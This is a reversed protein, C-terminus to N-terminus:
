AITTKMACCAANPAGRMGSWACARIDSCCPKPRCCARSATPATSAARRAPCIPFACAARKATGPLPRKWSRSWRTAPPTTLTPRGRVGLERIIRVLEPLGALLRRIRLVEQWSASRLLGRLEDWRSHEVDDPVMGFVEVLEDIEGCHQRWDDSFAAIAMRLAQAEDAGRDVYDVILDFHFLVSALVTDTLERQHHCYRELGLDAIAEGLAMALPPPPWRWDHPAPLCGGLLAAQLEGLADLRSELAGQSHTMGGLWLRRALVDLTALRAEAGAFLLSPPLPPPSPAVATNM